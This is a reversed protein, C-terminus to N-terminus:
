NLLEMVQDLMERHQATVCLISEIRSDKNMKLLLLWRSQRQGQELVTLVKM